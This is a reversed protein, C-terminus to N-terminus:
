RMSSIPPTYTNTTGNGGTGGGPPIMQAEMTTTIAMVVLGMIVTVFTKMTKSEIKASTKRPGSLRV